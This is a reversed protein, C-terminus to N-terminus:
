DIGLAKFLGRHIVIKEKRNYAMNTNIYKFYHKHGVNRNQVGIVSFSYLTELVKDVNAEKISGLEVEQRFEEKFSDPSIIWQRQNGLLDFIRAIDPLIPSLEDRFEELLYNSFARDVKHIISETIFDSGTREAEECCAKVYKIFDRPRLLTNKAIFDFPPATKSKNVGYHVCKDIFVRKWETLFVPKGKKIPDDQFIRHALLAKLSDANWELEIMMDSWKNKDGGPIHSYIDDRLFVVPMIRFGDSHKFLAKVEQVAKFLGTLLDIYLRFNQSDTVDQYDEDLEDFVIYYKAQGVYDRIIDEMRDVREAWTMGGQRFTKSLAASGGTGAIEGGFQFSTWESIERSLSHEVSPKYIRELVERIKEDISYNKAMMKLISSYIIYQWIKIYQNPHRFQRDEMEYMLNFPFNKFSLRSTFVNYDSLSYIHQCIASKGSGKRGIVYCKKNQLIKEVSEYSYFYKPDELKGEVNWGQVINTIIPNM